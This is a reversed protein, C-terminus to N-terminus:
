IKIQYKMGNPLLDAPLRKEFNPFVLVMGNNQSLLFLAQIEVRDNVVPLRLIAKRSTFKAM